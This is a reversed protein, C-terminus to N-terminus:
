GDSASQILTMFETETLISVGATQAKKLKSGAKGADGVVLFTLAKSVGSAALGGLARVQNQADNRSMQTLTGTFLFSQGDLPGNIPTEEVADEVTVFELLADIMEAAQAIRRPM